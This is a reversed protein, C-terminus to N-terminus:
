MHPKYPKGEQGMKKLHRLHGKFAETFTDIYNYQVGFEKCTQRVIPAIAPYHYQSVTPFLHHETQYNLAGCMFTMLSSKHAYDVSTRVQLQAWEIDWQKHPSHTDLSSVSTSPSTSGKSKKSVDNLNQSTFGHYPNVHSPTKPSSGAAVVADTDPTTFSPSAPASDTVPFEAEDSVHSVQFNIALYAGAVLEAIIFFLFCDRPSLWLLPLLLRLLVFNLKSSALRMWQSRTIPNVTIPGNVRDIHVSFDQVRSKLALLSYLPVLYIHQFRYIWSWIQQPAILRIDGTAAMPLDPDVQYVNTYVHHGVVHQNQWAVMSSGIFGESFMRGGLKWWGESHGVSSHSCDHMVHLLFMVQSWGMIVSILLKAVWWSTSHTNTSSYNSGLSPFVWEFVPTLLLLYSSFFIISMLTMRWISGMPDKHDIKNKKFYDGVRQRLATYFGSDPKFKPYQRTVLQGIDYQALYTRPATTFPHYSTFLDTCDRGAALM